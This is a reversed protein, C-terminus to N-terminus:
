LRRIKDMRVNQSMPFYEPSVATKGVKGTSSATGITFLKPVSSTM